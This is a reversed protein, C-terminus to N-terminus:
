NFPKAVSTEGRYAARNIWNVAMGRIAKPEQNFNKNILTFGAPYVAFAQWQRGQRKCADGSLVCKIGIKEIDQFGKQVFPM